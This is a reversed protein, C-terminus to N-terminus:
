IEPQRFGSKVSELWDKAGDMELNIKELNEIKAQLNEWNPKIYNFYTYFLLAVIFLLWLLRFVTGIISNRRMRRLLTNNELLLRQNEKLLERIDDDEDEM